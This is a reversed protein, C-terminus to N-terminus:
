HDTSWRSRCTSVCEKGVRREESRLDEWKEIRFRLADFEIVSRVAILCAGIHQLKSIVIQAFNIEDAAVADNWIWCSRVVNLTVGDRKFRWRFDDSFLDEIATPTELRAIHEVKCRDGLMKSGVIYDPSNLM